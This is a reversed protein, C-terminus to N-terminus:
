DLLDVLIVPRPDDPLGWLRLNTYLGLPSRWFLTYGWGHWRWVSVAIKGDNLEELVILEQDGDQDLDGLEVQSIPTSLASGGWLLKFQGSRYGVIFPHSRSIGQTDPKRLSIMLEYRGDDNPDGLALDLAQWEVPSQWALRNLYDIEVRGSKLRITEAKGDGTLDIQGIWTSVPGTELRQELPPDATQCDDPSCLFALRQPPPQVRRFIESAAEPPMWAPRTAARLPLAQVARLGSRDLYIRLALGTSTEGKFQDFVFNGLSYAVFGTRSAGDLELQFLESGQVVHPHHGIVLDAGAAVLEQATRRQAPDAMTQYEAGWHMSVIVFDAQQRALALDAAAQNTYRAPQPGSPDPVAPPIQSYALFAVRLGSVTLIYPEAAADPTKLWGVAQLGAARLSDLTDRLAQGGLDLAHNNALSLLDFGAQRLLIPVQRGMVLRYPQGPPTNSLTAADRGPPALVGELNGFALDASQLWETVRSLTQANAVVTRGLMVDGVAALEVLSEDPDIERGDRLYLWEVPRAPEVQPWSSFASLALILLLVPAIWPLDYIVGAKNRKGAPHSTPM